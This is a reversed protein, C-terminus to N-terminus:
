ALEAELRQKVRDCHCPAPACFCILWLPGEKALKYLRNMEMRIELRKAASLDRYAGQRGDWWQAVEVDPNLVRGLDYDFLEITEGREWVGGGPKPDGLRRPNALPSQKAGKGGRGMYEWAGPQNRPQRINVVTIKCM